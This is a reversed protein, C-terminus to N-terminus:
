EDGNDDSRENTDEGKLIIGPFKKETLMQLAKRRLAQEARGISRVITVRNRGERKAITEQKVKDIRYATVRKFATKSVASRLEEWRSHEESSEIMDNLLDSGDSAYLSVTDFSVVGATYKRINHRLKCEDLYQGHFFKMLEWDYPMTELIKKYQVYDEVTFLKFEYRNMRKYDDDTLPGKDANEPNATNPGITENTLTMM